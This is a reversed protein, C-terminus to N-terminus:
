SFDLIIGAKEIFDMGFLTRNNRAYPLAIFTTNINRGALRVDVNAILVDEESSTGDALGIRLNSNSFVQGKKALITYLSHGAVSLKAATDILGIGKSGQIEVDLIPRRRYEERIDSTDMVCFDIKDESATIKISCQPCDKRLYGPKSCGYCTVVPRLRASTQSTDEDSSENKELKSPVTATGKSPATGQKKQLSSCDEVVHGFNKCFKCRPRTEQKLTKESKVDNEKPKEARTEEAERALDLLESFTNFKERPVEKRIPYALLGYVMDLQVTEPLSVAYSLKSLLARAECIFIDSPTDEKYERSFLEKFIRHPPKKSGYTQRLARIAADWTILTSKVVRWWTAALGTLLIPLGKLANEDTINLCNKYTEIADIFSEVDETKDGNFRSTCRSFNGQPQAVNVVPNNGTTTQIQRLLTAFQENTLTISNSVNSEAM